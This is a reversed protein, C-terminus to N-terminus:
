LVQVLGSSVETKKLKQDAFFGVYRGDPSWFPYSAGTTGALPQITLSDM